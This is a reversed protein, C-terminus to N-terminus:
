EGWVKWWPWRIRSQESKSQEDRRRLEGELYANRRELKAVHDAQGNGQPAELAKLDGRVAAVEDQLSKITSSQESVAQTLAKLLRLM